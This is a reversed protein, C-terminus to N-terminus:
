KFIHTVQQSAQELTVNHQNEIGVAKLNLELEDIDSGVEIQRYVAGSEDTRLISLLSFNDDDLLNAQQSRGLVFIFRNALPKNNADYAQLDLSIVKHTEFNFAPDVYLEKSNGAPTHLRDTSPAFDEGAVSVSPAGIAIALAIFMGHILHKSKKM